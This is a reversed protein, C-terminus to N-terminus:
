DSRDLNGISGLGPSLYGRPTETRVGAGLGVGGGIGAPPVSCMNAMVRLSPMLVGADVYTRPLYSASETAGPQLRGKGKGKRGM